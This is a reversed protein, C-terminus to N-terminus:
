KIPHINGMKILEDLGLICEKKTDILDDACGDIEVYWYYKNDEEHYIRVINVDEIFGVVKYYGACLRKIKM